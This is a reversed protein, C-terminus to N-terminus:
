GTPEGEELLTHAESSYNCLNKSEKPAIASLQRLKMVQLVCHGGASLQELKNAEYRRLEAVAVPSAETSNELLKKLNSDTKQRTLANGRFKPDLTMKYTEDGLEEM